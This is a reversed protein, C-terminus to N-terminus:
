EARLVTGVDTLFAELSRVVRQLNSEDWGGTFAVEFPLPAVESFAQSLVPDLFNLDGSFGVSELQCM